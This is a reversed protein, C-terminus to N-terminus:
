KVVEITGEKIVKVEFNAEKLEHDSGFEISPLSIGNKYSIKAIADRIDAGNTGVKSIVNGLIKIADYTLSTILTSNANMEQKVHAKFEDPNRIVGVTYMVGEAVGSKIVEDTEFLDGGLVPVNMGLDKM